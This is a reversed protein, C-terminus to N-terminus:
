DDNVEEGVKEKEGMAMPPRREQESKSSEEKNFPQEERRRRKGKEGMASGRSPQRSLDFVWGDEEM